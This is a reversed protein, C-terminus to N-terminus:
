GLKIAGASVWRPLYKAKGGKNVYDGATGKAKIVAACIDWSTRRASGDGGFTFDKKLLAIKRTDDGKPAAKATTAKAKPATKPAAKGAARGKAAADSVSKAAHPANHAGLGKALQAKPPNAKEAQWAADVAKYSGGVVAVKAIAASFRSRPITIAPQKGNATVVIYDGGSTTNKVSTIIDPATNAALGVSQNARASGAKPGAKDAAKVTRTGKIETTKHGTSTIGKIAKHAANSSIRAM